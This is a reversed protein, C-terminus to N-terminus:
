AALIRMRLGEQEAPHGRRDVRVARLGDVGLPDGEQALAQGRHAAEDRLDVQRVHQQQRRRVRLPSPDTAARGVEHREAVAIEEAAPDHAVAVEGAHQGHVLLLDGLLHRAGPVAVRPLRGGGLMGVLALSLRVVRPRLRGVLPEGGPVPVRPQLRRAVVPLHHLDPRERAQQHTIGRSHRLDLRADVAAQLLQADAGAREVGRHAAHERSRELALQHRRPERAPEVLELAVHVRAVQADRVFRLPMGRAPGLVSAAEAGVLDRAAREAVPDLDGVAGDGVVLGHHGGGPIGGRAVRLAPRPWVLLRQDARRHGVRLARELQQARHM